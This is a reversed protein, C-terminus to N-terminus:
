SFNERQSPYHFTNRRGTQLLTDSLGELQLLKEKILQPLLQHLMQIKKVGSIDNLEPCFRSVEYSSLAVSIEVSDLFSFCCISTSISSRMPAWFHMDKVRRGGLTMPSSPGRVNSLMVAFRSLLRRIIFRLMFHPLTSCIATIMAFVTGPWQESKLADCQHKVQLIHKLSWISNGAIDGQSLPLMQPVPAARNEMFQTGNSSVSVPLVIPQMREFFTPRDHVALSLRRSRWLELERQLAHITPVPLKLEMLNEDTLARRLLECARGRRLESLAQVLCLTLLDNITFHYDLLAQFRATIGRFLQLPVSVPPILIRSCDSTANELASVRLRSQDANTIQLLAIARPQWLAWEYLIAAAKWFALVHSALGARLSPPSPPFHQGPSECLVGALFNGLSVGDCVAHHIKLGMYCEHTGDLGSADTYVPKLLIIRWLPELRCLPDSAWRSLEEYISLPIHVGSGVSVSDKSAIVHKETVHWNVDFVEWPSEEFSESQAPSLPTWCPSQSLSTTDSTSSQRSLPLDSRDLGHAFTTRVPLVKWFCRQFLWTRQVVARLKPERLVLRHLILERATELDISETTALGIIHCPTDGIDLWWCLDDSTMPFDPPHRLLWNRFGSYFRPFLVIRRWSRTAVSHVFPTLLLLLGPVRPPPFDRTENSSELPPFHRVSEWWVIFDRFSRYLSAAWFFSVSVAEYVSGCLLIICSCTSVILRFNLAVAWLYLRMFLATFVGVFQALANSSTLERVFCIFRRFWSFSGRRLEWHFSEPPPPSRFQLRPGSPPPTRSVPSAAGNTWSERTSTVTLLSGPFGSLQRQVVPCKKGEMALFFVDSCSCQKWLAFETRWVLCSHLNPQALCTSLM